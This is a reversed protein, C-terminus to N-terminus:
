HLESWFGMEKPHLSRMLELFDISWAKQEFGWGTLDREHVWPNNIFVALLHLVDIGVKKM